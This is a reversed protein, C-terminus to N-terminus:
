NCKRARSQKGRCYRFRRLSAACEDSSCCLLLGHPANAPVDFFAAEPCHKKSVGRAKCPIRNSLAGRLQTYPLESSSGGEDGQSLPAGQFISGNLYSLNQQPVATNLNNFDEGFRLDDSCPFANNSRPAISLGAISRPSSIPDVADVYSSQHKLHM